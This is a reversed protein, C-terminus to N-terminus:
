KLRIVPAWLVPPAKPLTAVAFLLTFLDSPNNFNQYAISVLLHRELGVYSNSKACHYSSQSLIGVLVRPNPSLLRGYADPGKETIMRHCGSLRGSVQFLTRRTADISGYPCTGLSLLVNPHCNSARTAYKERM